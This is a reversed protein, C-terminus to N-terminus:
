AQPIHAPLIHCSTDCLHVQWLFGHCVPLSLFLQPKFQLNAKGQMQSYRQSQSLM